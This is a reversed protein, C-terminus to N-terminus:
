VSPIVSQHTCMHLNSLNYQPTTANQRLKEGYDKGLMTLYYYHCTSFFGQKDILFRDVWNRGKKWNKKSPKRDSEHIEPFLVLVCLYM